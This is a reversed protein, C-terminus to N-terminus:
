VFETYKDQVEMPQYEVNFLRTLEIKPCKPSKVQKRRPKMELDRESYVVDGIHLPMGTM